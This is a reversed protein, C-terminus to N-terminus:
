REETKDFPAAFYTTGWGVYVYGDCHEHRCEPDVCISDVRKVLGQELLWPLVDSLPMPEDCLRVMRRGDATQQEEAPAYRSLDVPPLDAKATEETVTHLARLWEGFDEEVMSREAIAIAQGSLVLTPRVCGCACREFDEHDRRPHGCLTCDGLDIM